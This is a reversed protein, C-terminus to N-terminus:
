FTVMQGENIESYGFSIYKDGVNLGSLIQTVGNYELGITIMRKKAIQKGNDAEVLLVFTGDLSKQIINTPVTIADKINIDNIMMKASM